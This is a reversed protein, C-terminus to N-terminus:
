LRDSGSRLRGIYPVGDAPMYDQASWRFDISRVAFRERTWTELSIYRRRTDDDQGVKHSEGDLVLYTDEGERHPRVSRSPTDASLYMGEPVRGETRVALCYSRTPSTKAFFGGPDFFPLQTAQIVHKARISGGETKVTCADDAVVGVARTLEFVRSGEVQTLHALALCYKRPHFLAQNEFRVAARVDYPLDTETTLSAPLGLQQAASVEAEIDKVRQPDETYTFAPM